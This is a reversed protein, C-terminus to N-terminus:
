RRGCYTFNRGHVCTIHIVDRTSYVGLSLYSTTTGESGRCPPDMSTTRRHPERLTAFLHSKLRSQIIMKITNEDDPVSVSRAFLVGPLELNM